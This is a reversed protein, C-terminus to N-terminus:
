VQVQDCLTIYLRAARILEDIDMEVAQHATANRGLMTTGAFLTECSGVKSMPPPRNLAFHQMDGYFWLYESAFAWLVDLVFCNQAVRACNEGSVTIQSWTSDLLWIPITMTKSIACPYRLIACSNRWCKEGCWVSIKIKCTSFSNTPGSRPFIRLKPWKVM